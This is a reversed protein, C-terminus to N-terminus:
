PQDEKQMNELDEWFRPYSKAVCEAGTLTIPKQCRTAAVALMMAIRHDGHCDVTVGGALSDKGLITLREAGASIEAGIASLTDAIAAIRDSEKMRLRGINTIRLIGNMTAARAALPPVLDPYQAANITVEGGSRLEDMWQPFISDGQLSEEAM